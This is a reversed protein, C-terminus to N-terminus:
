VFDSQKLGREELLERQTPYKYERETEEEREEMMERELRSKILYPKDQINVQKAKHLPM